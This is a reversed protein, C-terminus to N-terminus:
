GKSTSPINELMNENPIQLQLTLNSIEEKYVEVKNRMELYPKVAKRVKDDVSKEIENKEIQLTEFARKLNCNENDLSKINSQTIELSKQLRTVEGKLDDLQAGLKKNENELETIRKCVAKQSCDNNKALLDFLESSKSSNGKYINTNDENVKPYIKKVLSNKGVQCRCEPCTKRIQIWEHLCDHHFIHGCKLVSINQDSFNLDNICVSCIVSM